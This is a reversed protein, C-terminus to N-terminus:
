WMVWNRPLPAPDMLDGAWSWYHAMVIVYAGYRGITYDGYEGLKPKPYHLGFNSM